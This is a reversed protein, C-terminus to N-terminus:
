QLEKLRRYFTSRSAIGARRMAEEESIKRQAFEEAIQQLLHMDTEIRKRGTYKGSKKANDIGQQQQMKTEAKKLTHQVMLLKLMASCEAKTWQRNDLEDWVISGERLIQLLSKQLKCSSTALDELGKIVVCDEPHLDTPIDDPDELVIRRGARQREVILNDTGCRMDTRLLWEFRDYYDLGVSEMLEWLDERGEGPTREAVFYPTMNARYYHKLRLSMDLGPIGQFIAPPLADIIGWEPSFVYQFNQDDYRQYEIHCVAYRAGDRDVAYIIGSNRYYPTGRLARAYENQAMYDRNVTRM